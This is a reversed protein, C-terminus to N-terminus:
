RKTSAYRKVVATIEGLEDANLKNLLLILDKYQKPYTQSKDFFDAMSIRMSRCFLYLGELSPLKHGNEIQNLYQSCKGLAVSLKSAAITKSSRVSSVRWKIFTRFNALIVKENEDDCQM